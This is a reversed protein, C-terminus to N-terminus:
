LKEWRRVKVLRGNEMKWSEVIRGMENIDDTGSVSGKAPEAEYARRVGDSWTQRETEGKM